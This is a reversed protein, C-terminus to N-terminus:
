LFCGLGLNFTVCFGYTPCHPHDSQVAHWTHWKDPNISWCFKSCVVTSELNPMYLLNLKNTAENNQWKQAKVPIVRSSRNLVLAPMTRSRVCAIASTQGCVMTPMTVFGTLSRHRFCLHKCGQWCQNKKIQICFHSDTYYTFSNNVFGTCIM